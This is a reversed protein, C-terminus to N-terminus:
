SGSRAADAEGDSEVEHPMLDFVMTPARTRSRTPSTEFPPDWHPRLLDGFQWPCVLVARECSQDWFHM